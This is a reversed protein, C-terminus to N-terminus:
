MELGGQISPILFKEMQFWRFELHSWEIKCFQHMSQIIINPVAHWLLIPSQNISCWRVSEWRCIEMPMAITYRWCIDYRKTCMALDATSEAINGPCLGIALATVYVGIPCKQKCEAGDILWGCFIINDLFRVGYAIVWLLNYNRRIAYIAHTVANNVWENTVNEIVTDSRYKTSSGIQLYWIAAICVHIRIGIQWM